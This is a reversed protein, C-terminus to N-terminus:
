LHKIEELFDEMPTGMGAKSEALGRDILDLIHKPTADNAALLARVQDLIEPDELEWLRQMTELKRSVFDQSVEM